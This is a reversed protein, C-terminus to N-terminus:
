SFLSPCSCEGTLGKTTLFNMLGDAARGPLDYEKLSAQCLFVALHLGDFKGDVQGCAKDAEGLMDKQETKLWAVLDATGMKPWLAAWKRKTVTRSLSKLRQIQAVFGRASDAKGVARSHSVTGSM